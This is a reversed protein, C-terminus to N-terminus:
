GAVEDLISRLSEPKNEPHKPTVCNEVFHKAFYCLGIIALHVLTIRITVEEPDEESREGTYSATDKLELRTFHLWNKPVCGASKQSILVRATRFSMPEQFDQSTIRMQLWWFMSEFRAIGGPAPWATSVELPSSSREWPIGLSIYCDFYKKWDIVQKKKKESKRELNSCGLPSTLGPSLQYIIKFFYEIQYQPRRNKNCLITYVVLTNLQKNAVQAPIGRNGKKGWSPKPWTWRLM